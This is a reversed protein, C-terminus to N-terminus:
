RWVVTLDAVVNFLARGSPGTFIIDVSPGCHGYNIVDSVSRMRQDLRIEILPGHQWGVASLGYDVEMFGVLESNRDLAM